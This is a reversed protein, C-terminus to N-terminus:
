AVSLVIFIYIYIHKISSLNNLKSDAKQFRFFRENNRQLEYICSKNYMITERDKKTTVKDDLEATRKLPNSSNVVQDQNSTTWQQKTVFNHERATSNVACLLQM